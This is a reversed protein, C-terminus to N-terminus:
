GKSGTSVISVIEGTAARGKPCHPWAIFRPAISKPWREAFGKGSATEKARRPLASRAICPRESRM